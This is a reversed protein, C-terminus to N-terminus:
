DNKKVLHISELPTPFKNGGGFFSVFLYLLGLLLHLELHNERGRLFRWGVWCAGSRSNSPIGSSSTAGSGSLLSIKSGLFGPNKRDLITHFCPTKTLLHRFSLIQLGLILTQTATLKEEDNQASAEPSNKLKINMARDKYFSQSIPHFELQLPIVEIRCSARPHMVTPWQWLLFLWIFLTM